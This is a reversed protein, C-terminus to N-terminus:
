DSEQSPGAPRSVGRGTESQDAPEQGTQAHSYANVRDVFARNRVRFELQQLTHILERRLGAELTLLPHPRLQGHSGAVTLSEVAVRQDIETLREGARRILEAQIEELTTLQTHLRGPLEALAEDIAALFSDNREQRARATRRPLRTGPEDGFGLGPSKTPLQLCRQDRPLDALVRQFERAIVRLESTTDVERARQQLGALAPCPLDTASALLHAHHRARFSLERSRQLLSKAPRAM